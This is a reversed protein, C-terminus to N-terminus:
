FQGGEGEGWGDGPPWRRPIGPTTTRASAPRFSYRGNRGREPSSLEKRTGVAARRCGSRTSAQNKADRVVQLGQVHDQSARWMNVLSHAKSYLNGTSRFLRFQRNYIGTKQHKGHLRVVLALAGHEDHEQISPDTSTCPPNPKAFWGSFSSQLVWSCATVCRIGDCHTM